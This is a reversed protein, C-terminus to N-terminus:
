LDEIYVRGPYRANILIGYSTNIRLEKQWAEKFTSLQESLNEHPNFSVRVGDKHEVLLTKLEKPIIFHHTAFNTNEKLYTAVELIASGMTKNILGSGEQTNNDDVIVTPYDGFQQKLAVIDPYHATSTPIGEEEGGRTLTEHIAVSRLTRIPTGTKDILTYQEGNDHIIFSLRETVTVSITSPFYKEITISDVPFNATVASSIKDHNLFFYSNGPFVLYRKKQIVDKVKQSLQQEDINVANRVLVHEVFFFPHYILLLAWAILTLIFIVGAAKTRLTGNEARPKRYPNERRVSEQKYSRKEFKKPRTQRASQSYGRYKM